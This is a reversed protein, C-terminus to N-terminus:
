PWAYSRPDLLRGLDGLCRPRSDQHDSRTQTHPTHAPWKAGACSSSFVIHEPPSPPIRVRSPQPILRTNELPQSKTSTTGIHRWHRRLRSVSEARRLCWTRTHSVVNAARSTVQSRRSAADTRDSGHEPLPLVRALASVELPARDSAMGITALGKLLM